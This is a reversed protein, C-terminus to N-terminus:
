QKLRGKFWYEKRIDGYWREMTWVFTADLKDGSVTGRWTIQGHTPSQTVAEFTIIGDDATAKYAGPGFGYPDCSTSRFQGETFIFEDPSDAPMGKGGKQGVYTRGDLLYSTELNQSIESAISRTVGPVLVLTLALFIVLVKLLTRM